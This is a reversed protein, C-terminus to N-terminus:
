PKSSSVGALKHGGWSPWRGRGGGCGGGKIVGDRVAEGLVNFHFPTRLLNFLTVMSVVKFMTTKIYKVPRNM